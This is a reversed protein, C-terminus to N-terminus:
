AINGTMFRMLESIAIASTRVVADATNSANHSGLVCRPHSRFLSHMHLPETEFVDLAASFVQGSELAPEDIIPGRGVNVVRVGPKCQALVEANLMHHSSPTLACNIVIFDAENIRQPWTARQVQPMASDDPAYPDYPDYAVVAMDAALLRRATSKGIDCYGVLAVTKGALSLTQQFVRGARFHAL